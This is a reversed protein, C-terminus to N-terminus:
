VFGARNEKTPSADQIYPVLFICLGLYVEELTLAEQLFFPHQVTMLMVLPLEQVVSDQLPSQHCLPSLITASNYELWTKKYSVKQTDQLLHSAQSRINVIIGLPVKPDLNQQDNRDYKM